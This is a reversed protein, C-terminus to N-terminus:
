CRPPNTDTAPTITRVPESRMRKAYAADWWDTPRLSHYLTEPSEHRRGNDKVGDLDDLDPTREIRSCGPAFMLYSYGGERGMREDARVESWNLGTIGEWRGSLVRDRQYGGAWALAVRFEAIADVTLGGVCDRIREYGQRGCGLITVRDAANMPAQGVLALALGDTVAHQGWAEDYGEVLTRRRVGNRAKYQSQAFGIAVVKGWLTLRPLFCDVGAVKTLYAEAGPNGDPMVMTAMALTWVDSETLPHLGFRSYRQDLIDQVDEPIRSEYVTQAAKNEATM